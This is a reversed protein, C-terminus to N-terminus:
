AVIRSVRQVQVPTSTEMRVIVGGREQVSPPCRMACRSMSTAHGHTSDPSRMDSFCVVCVCIM